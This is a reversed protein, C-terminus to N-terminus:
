KNLLEVSPLPLDTPASPVPLPSASPFCFSILLIGGDLVFVAIYSGAALYGVPPHLSLAVVSLVAGTMDITLFHRSIGAVSRSQYIERYQPIFGWVFFAISFVNVLVLPWSNIDNNINNGLLLLAGSVEAGAFFIVALAGQVVGRQKSRHYYPQQAWCGLSFVLFINPQLIFLIGLRAGISALATCLSGLSWAMMMASSLGVTSKARWNHHAQPALQFSWFALAFAEVVSAATMLRLSLLPRDLSYM